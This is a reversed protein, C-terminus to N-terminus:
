WASRCKPNFTSAQMIPQPFSTVGYAMLGFVAEGHYIVPIGLRTKEKFYRQMENYRRAAEVPEYKGFISAMNGMGLTGMTKVDFDDMFCQLQAAKEELT